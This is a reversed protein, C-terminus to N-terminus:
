SLVKIKRLFELAKVRGTHERAIEDQKQQERLQAERKITYRCLSLLAADSIHSIPDEAESAYKTRAVKRGALDKVKGTYVLEEVYPYYLEIIRNDTKGKCNPPIFNREKGWITYDVQYEWDDLLKSWDYKM